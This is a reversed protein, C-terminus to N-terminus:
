EDDDTLFSDWDIDDEESPSPNWNFEAEDPPPLKKGYNLKKIHPQVMDHAELPPTRLVHREILEERVKSDQEVAIPNKPAEMPRGDATVPMPPPPFMMAREQETAIMPPRMAASAAAAAQQENAMTEAPVADVRPQIQPIQPLISPQAPMVPPPAVPQQLGPQQGQGMPMMHAQAQMPMAAQAAQAAAQMPNSAPM